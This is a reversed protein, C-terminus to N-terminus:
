PVEQLRKRRLKYDIQDALKKLQDRDLTLRIPIDLSIEVAEEDAVQTAAASLEVALDRAYNDPMKVVVRYVADVDVEVVENGSQLFASGYDGRDRSVIM